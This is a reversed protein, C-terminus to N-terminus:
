RRTHNLSNMKQSNMTDMGMNLNIVLFIAGGLNKWEVSKKSLSYATTHVFETWKQVQM